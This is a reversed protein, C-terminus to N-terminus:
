INEEPYTAKCATELVQFVSQLKCQSVVCYKTDASSKKRKWGKKKGSHNM